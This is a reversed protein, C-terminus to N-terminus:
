QPPERLEVYARGRVDQAWSIYAEDLKKEHLMARVAERQEQPSLTAQRREMLQILHVGFRSVLPESIQGPTLSNMVAEFEPVFMGPNAWGLDGGQAASGDQSHDRALAAFDAQGAAVRKKFENLKDRAASETLQPSVRLLIHRARSQTVTMAPLAASKKELVKLIHFGAGSRVLASIEGVALNHTAELFLPPYRDATRLGLEGGNALSAKDSADSFERVLTVFDEGARARALARQARAQLATVQVPTATDPVSVLVQALNIQQVAPTSSQQERLFQDIELESVRARPEVERERLRTLLIQDRLQNRFQGPVGGEQTLRRRLEAVTLQNQRAINQEAQDIAAEDAAIGSERALQLQAKENILRELVQRVLTKSDVQPNGQQALQQLVRQLAARVENNTIPESNVVAVIYDAALGTAAPVRAPALVGAGVTASSPRLGQAPVTLPALLALSAVSLAVLRHNM